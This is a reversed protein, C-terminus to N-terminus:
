LKWVHQVDNQSTVAVATRRETVLKAVHNVREEWSTLALLSKKLTTADTSIFQMAFMMLVEVQEQAHSTNSSEKTPGGASLRSKYGEIISSVYSQSGDLLVISSPSCGRSELLKTMELAVATGFSYGGIVYEGSPHLKLLEQLPLELSSFLVLDIFSM